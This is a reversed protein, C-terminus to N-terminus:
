VPGRHLRGAPASEVDPKTEPTPRRPRTAKKARPALKAESLVERAEVPAEPKRTGRAEDDSPRAHKQRKRTKGGTRPKSKPAERREPALDLDALDIEADADNDAILKADDIARKNPAARKPLTRKSATRKVANTDANRTRKPPATRNTAHEDDDERREDAAQTTAQRVPREVSEPKPVPRKAILGPQGLPAIALHVHDHHDADYDPTLLERFLGTTQLTCAIRNLAPSSEACGDRLGRAFDRAVNLVIGHVVIEHVDFALGFAHLSLRGVRAMRYSYAGALRVESVGLARLKPAVSSLAVLLRCDCVIPSGMLTYRIGGIPGKLVVPTEIGRKEDLSDYAIGLEALRSRCADGSPISRGLQPAPFVRGPAPWPATRAPELAPSTPRETGPNGFAPVVPEAGVPSSIVGQNSSSENSANPESVAPPEVM